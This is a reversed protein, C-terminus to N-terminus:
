KQLTAQWNVLVTLPPVHAHISSQEVVLFRQGDATPQYRRRSYPSTLDQINMAFLAEPRAAEFTPTLRTPVAM